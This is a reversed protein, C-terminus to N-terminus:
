KSFHPRLLAPLQAVRVDALTAASITIVDFVGDPAGRAFRRLFAEPADLADALAHVRAAQAPAGTDGAFVLVKFRTDAPLLDQIDFPRGDAARVFTHPPVREGVVLARAHAQHQPAVLASPAYHVGIGSTFAGFTQFARRLHQSPCSVSAPLCTSSSNSTPYATKTRM